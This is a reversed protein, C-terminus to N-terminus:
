AKPKPALLEKKLSVEEGAKKRAEHLAEMETRLYSKMKEIPCVDEIVYGKGPIYKFKKVSDGAGVCKGHAVKPPVEPKNKLSKLAKKSAEVRPSTQDTTRKRLVIAGGLSRKIYARLVDGLKAISSSM